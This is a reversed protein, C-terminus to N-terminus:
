RVTGSLGWGTMGFRDSGSRIPDDILTLNKLAVNSPRKTWRSSHHIASSYNREYIKERAIVQTQFAELFCRPWNSSSARANALLRKSTQHLESPTSAIACIM